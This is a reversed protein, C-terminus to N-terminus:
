ALPGRAHFIAQNIQEMFRDGNAPSIVVNMGRRRKIEVVYQASTAFRIGNYAMASNGSTKKIEKIDVYLITMALPKGLNIVLRDTYIQYKRPMIFYFLSSDFATVAFMVAAGGIDLTLLWFGLILTLLPIGGLLLKLWWDYQAPEEYILNEKLMKLSGVPEKM